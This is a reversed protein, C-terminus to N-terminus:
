RERHRCVRKGHAMSRWGGTSTRPDESDGSVRVVELEGSPGRISRYRPKWIPPPPSSPKRGKGGESEPLYWPAGGERGAAIIEDRLFDPIMPHGIRVAWEPINAEYPLFDEPPWPISTVKYDTTGRQPREFADEGAWRILVRGEIPDGKQAHGKKVYVSDIANRLRRAKEDPDFDEWDEYLFFTRSRDQHLKTRLEDREARARDVADQRRRAETMFRDRGVVERLEDDALFTDLRAEADALGRGAADLADQDPSRETREALGHWTLFQEIIIPEITHAMVHAPAPCTGGTHKRQCSYTEVKRSEGNALKYTIWTRRMAYRCGACRIIGALLASSGKIAGPGGDVANAAEWEPITVIAEHANSNYHKGHFAEGKYARSQIMTAVSRGTWDRGDDRPVVDNLWAAISRWSDRQARRRFMERVIPATERDPELRGDKGRLYGFPVSNTFHVGRAIAREAAIDWSETIRRREMRALALMITLAFEGFTTTPDIGLDVAAIKGGHADIEEVLRLAEAVSARSLRDLRAV